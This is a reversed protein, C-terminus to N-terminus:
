LGTSVQFLGTVGSREMIAQTLIKKFTPLPAPPTPHARLPTCTAWGVSRVSLPRRTGGAGASHLLMM